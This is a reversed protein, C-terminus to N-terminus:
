GQLSVFRECRKRLCVWEGDVAVGELDEQVMM